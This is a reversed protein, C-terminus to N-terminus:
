SLVSDRQEAWPSADEEETSCCLVAVARWHEWRQPSMQPERRGRKPSRWSLNKRNQKQPKTAKTTTITRKILLGHPKLRKVISGMMVCVLFVAMVKVLKEVDGDCLSVLPVTFPKWVPDM